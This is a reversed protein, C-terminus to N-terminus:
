VLRVESRVAAELTMACRSEVIAAISRGITSSRPRAYGRRLDGIRCRSHLNAPRMTARAPLQATSVVRQPLLILREQTLWVGAPVGIVVVAILLPWEV